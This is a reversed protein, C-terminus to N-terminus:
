NTTSAKWNKKTTAVANALALNNILKSSIGAQRYNLSTGALHGLTVQNTKGTHFAITGAEVWRVPEFLSTFLRDAQEEILNITSGKFNTLTDKLQGVTPFEVTVDKVRIGDDESGDVATLVTLLVL